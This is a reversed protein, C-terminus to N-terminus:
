HKSKKIVENKTLHSNPINIIDGKKTKIRTETLSIKIIKGELDKVKINDGQNIFGARILSLGSILNPIFDKIGLLITIILVILIAGSVMYIVVGTIGVQDLAIALTIFYIFYRIVNSIAEEFKPKFGTAKKLINNLEIESLIKKAFKSILRAIIFGILLIIIPTLIKNIFKPNRILYKEM